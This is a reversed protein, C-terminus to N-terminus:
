DTIYGLDDLISRWEDLTDGFAIYGPEAEASPIQRLAIDWWAVNRHKHMFGFLEFGDRCADKDAQLPEPVFSAVMATGKEWGTDRYDAHKVTNAIAEIASQWQVRAAVFSTFDDLATMGAPM